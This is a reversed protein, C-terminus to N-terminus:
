WFHNTILAISGGLEFAILEQVGAALSCCHSLGTVKRVQKHADWLCRSSWHSFYFIPHLLGKSKKGLSKSQHFPLCFECLNPQASTYVCEFVWKEPLLKASAVFTFMKENLLRAIEEATCHSIKFTVAELKSKMISHCRYKACSWRM